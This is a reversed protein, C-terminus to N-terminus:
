RLFLWDIVVLWPLFCVTAWGIYGFFSPMKIGHSEVIAKVMFNPANGVYSMGGFFVAGTSIAALVPALPGSLLAPDNGAFGFFVLYTPANDLLASLAGTAWYFAAPDPKGDLFLRALVPALPGQRGAAIMETVPALTIFIAAFLIAVEVMPAWSFENARRIARRTTGFSAAGLGFLLADAVIDAFKWDVGFLTLGFSAPWETRLLIVAIVAALFVLNLKGELGLKEIEEILEPERRGARRYALTDLILFLLLLIAALTLTSAGLHRAPWFFPVGLLYGLFLPPDGLPSLGGGVNAVLLIFFVYVHSTRHRRRNARILPRLMVMSAGTTGIVSAMATGVGLLAVNVAPAARLTGTLRVGGAIVFLAGLLLIFPLYEHVALAIITTMTAGAGHRVADAVLSIIAWCAAAKGYHRHWLNPALWPLLAITLLLGAFPIGFALTMASAMDGTRDM